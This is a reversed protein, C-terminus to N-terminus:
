KFVELKEWGICTMGMVIQPVHMMPQIWCKFARNRSAAPKLEPNLTVVGDRVLTLSGEAYRVWVDLLPVLCATPLEMIWRLMAERLHVIPNEFLTAKLSAAPKPYHFKLTFISGM